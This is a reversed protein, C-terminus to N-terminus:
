LVPLEDGPRWVIRAGNEGDESVEIIYRRDTGYVQLLYHLMHMAIQECSCPASWDPRLLGKAAHILDQKLQIFEIERSATVEIQVKFHFIHRHPQQLYNIRLATEGDTATPGTADPWHHLGEVQFTTWIFTLAHITM